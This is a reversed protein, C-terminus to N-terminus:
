ATETRQGQALNGESSRDTTTESLHQQPSHSRQDRRVKDATGSPRTGIPPLRGDGQQGYEASKSPMGRNPASSFTAMDVDKWRPHRQPTVAPASAPPSAAGEEPHFGQSPEQHMGEQSPTEEESEVAIARSPPATHRARPNPHDEGFIGAHLTEQAHYQFEDLDQQLNMKSVEFFEDIEAKGEEHFTTLSTSLKDLVQTAAVEMWAKTRKERQNALEELREEFRGCTEDHTQQLKVQVIKDFKTEIHDEWESGDALIRELQREELAADLDGLRKIYVTEHDKLRTLMAKEKADLHEEQDMLMKEWEALSTDAKLVRHEHRQLREHLAAEQDKVQSQLQIINQKWMTQHTDLINSADHIRETLIGEFTQLMSTPARTSENQRGLLQRTINGVTASERRCRQNRQEMEQLDIVTNGEMDSVRTYAVQHANDILKMEIDDEKLSVPTTSRSPTSVSQEEQQQQVMKDILPQSQTRMDPSEEVLKMPNQYSDDEDEQLTDEADATDSAEETESPHDLTEQNREVSTDTPLGHAERAPSNEAHFKEIGGQTYDNWYEWKPRASQSV